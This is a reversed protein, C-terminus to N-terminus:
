LLWDDRRTHLQLVLKKGPDKREPNRAIMNLYWYKRDGLFEKKAKGAMARYEVVGEDDDASAPLEVGPPFRVWENTYTINIFFDSSAYWIAAAAFNDAEIIEGGKSQKYTTWELMKPGLLDM